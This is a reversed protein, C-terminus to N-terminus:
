KDEKEYVVVFAKDPRGYDDYNYAVKCPYGSMAFLACLKERYDYLKIEFRAMEKM